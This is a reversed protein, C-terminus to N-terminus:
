YVQYCYFLRQKVIPISALQNIRFRDVTGIRFRIVHRIRKEVVKVFTPKSTTLQQSPDTRCSEFNAVICRLNSCHLSLISNAYDSIRNYM